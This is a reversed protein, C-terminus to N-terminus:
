EFDKLCEEKGESDGLLIKMIQDRSTEGAGDSGLFLSQKSIGLRGLERSAHFCAELGDQETTM